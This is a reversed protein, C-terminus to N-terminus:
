ILRFRPVRPDTILKEKEFDLQLHWKELTMVEIIVDEGLEEIIMSNM